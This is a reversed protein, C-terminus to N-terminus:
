PTEAGVLSTRKQAALEAQRARVRAVVQEPDGEIRGMGQLPRLEPGVRSRLAELDAELGLVEGKRILLLHEDFDRHSLEVRPTRGSLVDEVLDFLRSRASTIPIARGQDSKKAAMM